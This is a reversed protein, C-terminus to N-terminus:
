TCQAAVTHGTSHKILLWCSVHSHGGRALSRVQWRIICARNGRKHFCQRRNRWVTSTPDTEPGNSVM